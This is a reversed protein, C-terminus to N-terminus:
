LRFEETHGGDSGTVQSPCRLFQHKEYAGVDPALKAAFHREREAIEYLRLTIHELVRYQSELM